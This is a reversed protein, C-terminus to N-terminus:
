KRASGRNAMEEKASKRWMNKLIRTVPQKKVPLVDKRDEM